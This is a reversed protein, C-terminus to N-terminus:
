LQGAAPPERVALVCSGELHGMFAEQPQPFPHTWVWRVARGRGLSAPLCGGPVSSSGGAPLPARAGRTDLPGLQHSGAGEGGGDRPFRATRPRTVRPTCTHLRARKRTSAPRAQPFRLTALREGVGHKGPAAPPPLVTGAEWPRPREPLGKECRWGGEERWFVQNDARRATARRHCSGVESRAPQEEAPMGPVTPRPVM